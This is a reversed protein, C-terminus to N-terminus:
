FQLKAKNEIMLADHRWFERDFEFATGQQDRVIRTVKLGLAGDYTDLHQAIPNFLCCSEVSIDYLVKHHQYTNKLLMSISLSLDHKDIDPLHKNSFNLDEVVVARGDV